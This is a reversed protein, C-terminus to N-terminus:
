NELLQRWFKPPPHSIVVFADIKSNRREQSRLILLRCFLVYLDRMEHYEKRLLDAISKQRIRLVGACASNETLIKEVGGLWVKFNRLRYSARKHPHRFCSVIVHIRFKELGPEVLAPEMLESVIWALSRPRGLTSAPTSQEM